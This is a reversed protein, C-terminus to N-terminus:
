KNKQKLLFQLRNSQLHSKSFNNTKLEQRKDSAIGLEPFHNYKILAGGKIEHFRSYFKEILIRDGTKLQNLYSTKDALNWLIDSEKVIEYKTLTLLDQNAQFSYCGSENPIFEYVPIEM